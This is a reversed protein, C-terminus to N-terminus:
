MVRAWRPSGRSARTSPAGAAASPLPTSPGTRLGAPSGSSPAPPSLFTGSLYPSGGPEGASVCPCPRRRPCARMGAGGRLGDLPRAGGDRVRGNGRGHRRVARAPMTRATRTTGEPGARARVGAPGSLSGRPLRGPLATGSLPKPRRRFVSLPATAVVFSEVADPRRPGSAEEVAVCTVRPVCFLQPHIFPREPRGPPQGPGAREGGPAAALNRRAGCPLRGADRAGAPRVRRAVDPCGRCVGTPRWPPLRATRPAAGPTAPRVARRIAAPPSPPAVAPPRLKGVSGAVPWPAPVDRRSRPPAMWGVSDVPRKRFRRPRRAPRDSLATTRSPPPKGHARLCHGAQRQPSGSPSRPTRPGPRM